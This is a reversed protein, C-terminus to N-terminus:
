RSTRGNENTPSGEAAASARHGIGVVAPDLRVALLGTLSRERRDQQPPDTAKVAMQDQITVRPKGRRCGLGDLRRQQLQVARHRAIVSSRPDILGHPEVLVFQRAEGFEAGDM